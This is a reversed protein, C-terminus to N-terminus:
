HKQKYLKAFVYAAILVLVCAGLYIYNTASITSQAGFGEFNSPGGDNGGPGGGFPNSGSDSGSNGNPGGGPFGGEFLNDSGSETNSESNDSGSEFPNSDSDSGPGGPFGGFPSGSDSDSDDGPGGGMGGGMGGGPGGGMGGGMSGMDSITISSADILADPNEAQAADTSGISGDLQGEISQFRLSVFERMTEVAKEFESMECFKTPDKDVYSYIMEYTSDILDTLYGSDYFQELFAEYYEHYMETYEDSSIIWSFMPRDTDGATISQPNDIPDNVISDADQGQFTGYALNYDWPIMSLKGNEEYLYYNHIMSGTYSDGNVVFSHVVMYRLVADIDVAEAIQEEDGEALGENLNKLAKILRTKDSNTVTTKASNWITSYSDTDDDIYKLKAEDSGMGFGGSFPNDSDSDSDSEGGPGGGPFGGFDGGPFGNNDNSENTDSSDKSESGKSRDPGGSRKHSHSGSSKGNNDGGPSSSGKGPRSDESNDKGSDKTNDNSSSEDNDDESNEFPNKIGLEDFDMDRMDFDGGNGRGGGMSMTDPKYLDGYNTGYNRELFSDEVAEVALFLGWDEGNITVYVYSVLPSAAGFENMLKYAIYDKMMTYDQILNNLCLKDLGHYNTSDQYRDFEIKLSYRESGLQSVTSLSTNGKARLAVNKIKEGDITVNVATYEESTATELFSDWDDIEIDISHVYSDDFLTNEYSMDVSDDAVIGLKTGNMFLATVIVALITIIICIRDINKHTSM